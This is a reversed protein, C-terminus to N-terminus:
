WPLLRALRRLRQIWQAVKGVRYGLARARAEVAAHHYPVRLFEIVGLGFDYVACEAERPEPRRQADVSGPNILYTRGEALRVPADTALECVRASDVEFARQEHTHGFFAIRVGTFVRGLLDANSLADDRSRIYQEADEIGGHVLLFRGECLLNAPLGGLYAVSAPTLARRTKKLAHRARRSCPGDDLRGIAILDHNGAISEIARSRLIGICENSDANFGVIDGLCVVRDVRRADVVALAALLADKNGHIDGLIGYTAM